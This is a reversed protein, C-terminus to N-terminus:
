STLDASVVRLPVLIDNRPAFIITANNSKILEIVNKPISTLKTLHKIRSVQISEDNRSIFNSWYNNKSHAMFLVRYAKGAFILETNNFSGDYDTKDEGATPKDVIIIAGADGYKSYHLLLVNSNIEAKTVTCTKSPSLLVALVALIVVSAIAITTLGVILRLKSENMQILDYELSPGISRFCM